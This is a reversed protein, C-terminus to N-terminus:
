SAEKCLSNKQKRLGCSHVGRERREVECNRKEGEKRVKGYM